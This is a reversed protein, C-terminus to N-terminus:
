QGAKKQLSKIAEKGLKAIEDAIARREKESSASITDKARRTITNLKGQLTKNQKLYEEVLRTDAGMKGVLENMIDPKKANDDIMDDIKKTQSPSLSPAAKKDTLKFAM